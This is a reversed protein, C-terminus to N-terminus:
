SQGDIRGLLARLAAVVTAHRVGARGPVPTGSPWSADVAVAGSEDAVAVWVTGPPHGDQADPGAVGTTAVGLDARLRQRVGAALQTAVDPDVAGRRRLLVEDVGVLHHKLDTAYAVVGGRFVTSAGPVDTLAAAVLGGTLSEATAVTLDRARLTAM